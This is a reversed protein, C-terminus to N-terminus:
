PQKRVRKSTSGFRPQVGQLRVKDASPSFKSLLEYDFAKM